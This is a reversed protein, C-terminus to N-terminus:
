YRIIKNGIDILTNVLTASNMIVVINSYKGVTYDYTEFTHAVGDVMFNDKIYCEHHAFDMYYKLRSFRLDDHRIQFDICTKGVGRGGLLLIKHFRRWNHEDGM